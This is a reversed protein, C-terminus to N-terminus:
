APVGDQFVQRMDIHKMTLVTGQRLRSAVKSMLTGIELNTALVTLLHDRKRWREDILRLFREQAWETAHFEDFEDLALVECSILTEWREEFPDENKPNFAARLYDLVDPMTSYVATRGEAKAKNVVCHLFYSKGAGPDSQLVYIGNYAAALTGYVEVQHSFVKTTAFTHGRELETLGDLKDLRAQKNRNVQEERCKCPVTRTRWGRGDRVFANGNKDALILVGAGKCIECTM